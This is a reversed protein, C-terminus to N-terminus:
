CQYSGEIILEAILAKTGDLRIFRAPEHRRAAGAARHLDNLSFLGNLQRVAIEGLTFAQISQSM